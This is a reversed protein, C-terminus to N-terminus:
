VGLINNIMHDNCCCLISAMYVMDGDVNMNTFVEPLTPGKSEAPYRQWRCATLEDLM